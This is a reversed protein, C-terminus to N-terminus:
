GLYVLEERCGIALGRQTTSLVPMGGLAEGVLETRHWAECTARGVVQAIHVWVIALSQYCGSLIGIPTLYVEIDSSSLVSCPVQDITAEPILEEEVESKDYLIFGEALQHVLPHDLPARVEDVTDLIGIGEDRKPQLILVVGRRDM